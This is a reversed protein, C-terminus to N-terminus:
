NWRESEVNATARSLQGRPGEVKRGRGRETGKGKEGPRLDQKAQGWGSRHGLCAKQQRGSKGDERYASRERRETVGARGKRGEKKWRTKQQVLDCM